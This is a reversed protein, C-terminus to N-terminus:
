HHLAPRTKATAQCLGAHRVLGHHQQLHLHGGLRPELVAQKGLRSAEQLEMGLHQM